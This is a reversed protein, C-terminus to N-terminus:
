NKRIQSKRVTVKQSDTVTMPRYTASVLRVVQLGKEYAEEKTLDIQFKSISDNTVQIAV